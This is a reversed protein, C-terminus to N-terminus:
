ETASSPNDVPTSSVISHRPCAKICEGCSTCKSQDIHAIFSEIVPAGDKCVKRCKSCGICAVGCEIMAIPGRDRNACAVWVIPKGENYPALECLHRPCTEVCKGCGTCKSYDVVPLIEGERISIAGFPCASVCDGGGLCGYICDSEGQYLANEIACSSVGDYRNLPPRNECSASCRVIAVKRHVACPALGVIDAIKKMVDGTVGTCNIGDLTKAAACEVAFAHCGSFGCGGCNAGPLLEEIEGIKPDEFVQFKKAAMFLLIAATIGIVGLIIISITITM